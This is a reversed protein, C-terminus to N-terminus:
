EGRLPKGTQAREILREILARAAASVEQWEVGVGELGRPGVESAARYRVEARLLHREGDCNISVDVIAGVAPLPSVELFAGGSSIEYITGFRQTGDGVVKVTLTGAFRAHRRNDQGQAM